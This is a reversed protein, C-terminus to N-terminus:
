QRGAKLQEIMVPGPVYYFEVRRNAARAERSAETGLPEDFGVGYPIVAATPIGQGAIWEVIADARLRTLMNLYEEAGTDDSHVAVLMKYKDPTRLPRAIEMLTKSASSLLLSDNPAFLESAPVTVMLVLGERESLDTHFGAKSMNNALQAMSGKALNVIRRPLEPGALNDDISLEIIEEHYKDLNDKAAGVSPLVLLAALLANHLLRTIM